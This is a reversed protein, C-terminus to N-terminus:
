VCRMPEGGTYIYIYVGLDKGQTIINDIEDFTLNLKNGYEAAWCGVCHLNCASTPDLLIAWPVNCNYKQRIEEQRQWGVLNGNVIFNTFVTKLVENDVNKVLNVIFKHWNDNPDNIVRRIVERQKNFSDPSDGAFRYVWAMLKPLNEEPDKELYSLAQRIGFSQLSQKIGM